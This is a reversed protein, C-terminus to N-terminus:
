MIICGESRNCIYHSQDFEQGCMYCFHFGCVCHIHNCGHTREVITTCQPCQRFGFSHEIRQHTTTPDIEFCFKNEHGAAGWKQRCLICFSEKCYECNVQREDSLPDISKQSIRKRKYFLKRIFNIDEKPEDQRKSRITNIDAIMKGKCKQNPCDILHESGSDRFAKTLSWGDYLVNM